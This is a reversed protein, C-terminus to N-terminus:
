KPRRRDPYFIDDLGTKISGAVRSLNHGVATAILGATRFFRTAFEDSRTPGAIQPRHSPPPPPPTQPVAVRPGEHADAQDSLQGPMQGPVTQHAHQPAKRPDLLQMEIGLCAPLEVRRDQGAGAPTSQKYVSYGLCAYKFEFLRKEDNLAELHPNNGKYAQKESRSLGVCLPNRGNEKRYSSHYLCGTCSKGSRIVAPRDIPRDLSSASNSNSNTSTSSETDEDKMM